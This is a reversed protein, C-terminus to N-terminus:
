KKRKRMKSIMSKDAGDKLNRNVTKLQEIEKQLEEIKKSKEENEIALNAIEEAFVYGRKALRKSENVKEDITGTLLKDFKEDVDMRLIDIDKGKISIGADLLPQIDKWVQESAYVLFPNEFLNIIDVDSGLSGTEKLIAILTNPSCIIDKNYYGLEKAAYVTRKSQTLLYTKYALISSENINPNSDDSYEDDITLYIRADTDCMTINEEEFRFKAKYTELTKELLKKSLAKHKEKDVNKNEFSEDFCKNGFAKKLKITLVQPNNKDYINSLYSMFDVDSYSTMCRCKKVYDEIFVNAVETELTGDPIGLITEGRKNYQGIAADAHNGIEDAVDNPLIIKCGLSMLKEIMVRYARSYKAHTTLCNLAVDTDIVFTKDKLKTSKLNRLSPDLNLVQTTVYVRAWKELFKREDDSPKDITEALVRVLLEGTKHDLGKKAISVADEKKKNGDAIMLNFFEYGYMKYYVSLAEKINEIILGENVQFPDNGYYSKLKNLIGTVFVDTEEDLCKFFDTEDTGEYKIDKGDKKPKILNKKYLVDVHQQVDKENWDLHFRNNLIRVIKEVTYEGAGIIILGLVAITNFDNKKNGKKMSEFLLVSRLMAEEMKDNDKYLAFQINNTSM